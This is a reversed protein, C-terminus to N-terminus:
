LSKATISSAPFLADVNITDSFFDAGPNPASENMNIVGPYSINTM